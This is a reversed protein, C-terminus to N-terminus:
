ARCRRCGMLARGYWGSFGAQRQSLNRIASIIERGVDYVGTYSYDESVILSEVLRNLRGFFYNPSRAFRYRASLTPPPNETAQIEQGLALVEPDVELRQTLAQLLSTLRQRGSLGCLLAVHEPQEDGSRRTDPTGARQSFPTAVQGLKSKLFFLCQDQKDKLRGNRHLFDFARPSYLGLTGLYNDV